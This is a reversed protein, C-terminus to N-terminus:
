GTFIDYWMDKYTSKEQQLLTREEFPAWVPDPADVNERLSEFTLPSDLYEDHTVDDEDINARASVANWEQVLNLQGRESAFYDLFLKAANPNEAEKTIQYNPVQVNSNIHTVWQLESESFNPLIFKRLIWHALGVGYAVEGNAVWEGMTSTSYFARPNASALTEYVSRMHEEGEAEALTQMQQWGATSSIGDYTTFNENWFEPDDEIAATLDSISTPVERDDFQSPNYASTYITHFSQILGDYDTKTRDPYHEFEPSVYQQLLGLDNLTRMAVPDYTFVIDPEVRGRSTEARFRQFVEATGLTVPEPDVFDFIETFDGFVQEAFAGFFATYATFSGEDMAADITKWYDDPYYDPLQDLYPQVRSPPDQSETSGGSGDQGDATDTDGGNSGDGDDGGGACGALGAAVALGSTKLVTRRRLRGQSDNDGM